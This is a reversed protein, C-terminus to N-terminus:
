ADRNPPQAARKEALKLPGWPIVTGWRVWLGGQQGEGGLPWLTQYLSTCAFTLCALFSALCPSRQSARGELLTHAPHGYGWTSNGNLRLFIGLRVIFQMTMGTLPSIQETSSAHLVNWSSPLGAETGVERRM